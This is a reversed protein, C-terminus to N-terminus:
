GPPGQRQLNEPVCSGGAEPERKEYLETAMDMVSVVQPAVYFVNYVNVLTKQIYDLIEPLPSANIPAPVRCKAVIQEMAELMSMSVRSPEFAIM